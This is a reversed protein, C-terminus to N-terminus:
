DSNSLNHGLKDVSLSVAEHHAQKQYESPTIKFEAKFCTAFYRPDSFGTSFAVESVSISKDKEMMQCAHKLRINKVFESPSLDLLAKTKRYLTSKSLGLANGLALVDFQDDSLNDEVVTIMKQLFQEDQPTYNLSSINIQPSAKFNEQKTRKYSLFSQIRAQLVKLDFPKSIYSDAGAQYCEIRDDISNKATLLIVPIHNIEPDQKIERCLTLGDMIPMMIDSIIIDIEQHKLLHLAEEGHQAIIVNYTRSLINQVTLRLDENDEVLLISIQSRNESQPFESDQDNATEQSIIASDMLSHQAEYLEEESYATKGIPLKITFISGEGVVSKVDIEGHHLEVLEKTLALGIGNTEQNKVQKNNYFPTFIKEQETEAIGIGNDHVEVILYIENEIHETQYILKIEGKSPTYKFANSLINFIIKDLKDADIYGIPQCKKEIVQFDISKRKALPSFYISCINSIFCSLKEPGVRLVMQQNEVRKFDLIQQLLRKLRDLNFRMKEFQSLNKKTIMQVDDILCSIITLPTLLEHSINTFYSLKTQVLKYTNDKEIQAIQLHSKLELRNAYFRILSYIIGLVILIYLIYALNSEYFAPKKQIKLQTIETQWVNNLDTAKILFTYEGKALNNYTAFLRERPVYVWDKDVGELKYAYRIKGPHTYEFSSFLIELNQNEPDLVLKKEQVNYKQYLGHSIASQNNIKVDSIMVKSQHSPAFPSNQFKVIGNNGGFYVINKTKDTAFAGKSFMNITLGDSSSYEFIKHQGPLIKYINRTSSLWIISDLCVIDLIQNSSLLTPDVYVTTKKQDIDYAVLRNDKTGIWLNGLKDTDMTEIQSTMLGHTERGIHQIPKSTHPDIQYIGSDKTAVWLNSNKDQLIATIEGEIEGTMVFKTEGSKKCLLGNSTGVWLHNYSDKFFSRVIGAQLAHEKLDIIRELKIDNQEKKFVHIIPLYAGAVWLRDEIEMACSAARLSLLDKYRLNSYTILQDTQPMFKGFGIRELNMWLQDDRDRYLMNVNPSIHYTRHIEPLKINQVKPKDFSITSVGKGAIALWLAGNRDEYIHEFINSTENFLSKLNLEEISGDSTYHFTSIGSFSLVWIYKKTRDQLINYILDEKGEDRRKNQIIIERYPMQHDPDFLYLGDGWTAIWLQGREDQMMAFPNNMQGLPPYTIFHDTKQDLRRLGTAWLSTWIQGKQDQFIMNVTGGPITSSDSPDHEFSKYLSFDENYVYIANNTGVWIKAEKDIMIAGVRRGKLKDHPFPRVTFTKKDLYYLGKESGILLKDKSENITIVYQDPSINGVDDKLEFTILNFADFRSIGRATGFWIYGERDQFTYNVTLSPLEHEIRIPTVGMQQAFLPTVGM